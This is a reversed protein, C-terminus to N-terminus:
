ADDRDFVEADQDEKNGILLESGRIENEEEIFRTSRNFMDDKKEQDFAVALDVISLGSYKKPDIRDRRRTALNEKLKETQKRFREIATSADMQADPNGKVTKLLRIELVRNMSISIIDDMDNASLQSEDFDNLYLGVLGNFMELEDPEFIDTSPILDRLIEKFKPPNKPRGRGAM